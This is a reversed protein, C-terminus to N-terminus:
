TTHGWANRAITRLEDLTYGWIRTEGGEHVDYAPAPNEVGRPTVTWGYPGDPGVHGVQVIRWPARPSTTSDAGGMLM